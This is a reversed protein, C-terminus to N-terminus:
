IYTFTIKGPKRGFLDDRTKFKEPITVQTLSCGTFAWKGINTVNKPIYLTKFKKCGTFANERISRLGKGFVVNKLSYCNCFVSPGIKTVSDPIEIDTLTTECFAGDEITKVNSGIIISDIRACMFAETGISTVSDPIVLDDMNRGEFQHPYIKKLDYELPNINSNLLLDTFDRILLEPVMADYAHMESAIKEYCDDLNNTLLNLKNDKLFKRIAIEREPKDWGAM